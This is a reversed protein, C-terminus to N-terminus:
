HKLKETQLKAETKSEIESRDADDRAKRYLEFTERDKSILSIALINKYPVFPLMLKDRNRELCVIKQSRSPFEGDRSQSQARELFCESSVRHSQSSYCNIM